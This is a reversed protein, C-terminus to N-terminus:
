HRLIIRNDALEPLNINQGIAEQLTRGWISYRDFTAAISKTTTEVSRVFEPTTEWLQNFATRVQQASRSAALRIEEDSFYFVIVDFIARNFSRRGGVDEPKRAVDNEGFIEIAANTAAEFENTQRFIIDKVADWSYNLKECSEDLFRKLDGAYEHMFNQFALYRVLLEVDRMRFDPETIRLLKKLAESTVAKEDVYDSFEGPFMAQRLEQTSLKVSGTNLRLFVLHLFTIDPWNRIVVARITQNMFSTYQSSLLPDRGLDEFSKGELEEAVDLGKLKFKNHKGEGGGTFQLLTLLRQKGDLVIYRGKEQKREALVIQPIPLGLVLSEIFRSKRPGTWADRRQFRPNLLINERGLQSLITETTWDTSSVVAEYIKNREYAASVEDEDAESFEVADPNVQNEEM